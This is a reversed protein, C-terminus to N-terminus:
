GPKGLILIPGMGYRQGPKNRVQRAQQEPRTPQLFSLGEFGEEM